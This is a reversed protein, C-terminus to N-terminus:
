YVDLLYRGGEKLDDVYKQAEEKTRDGFEEVVQVIAEEVDTSMPAKAGCVYVYSGAQLWEFFESGNKNCM